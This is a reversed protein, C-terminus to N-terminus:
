EVAKLALRKDDAQGVFVYSPLQEVLSRSSKLEAPLQDNKKLAYWGNQIYNSLLRGPSLYAAGSVAEKSLPGILREPMQEFSAVEKKCTKELLDLAAAKQAVAIVNPCVKRVFVARKERGDFTKSLQTVQAATAGPQHILIAPLARSAEKPSDDIGLYALAVAQPKSKRLAPKASKFYATLADPAYGSPRPVFASSFFVTSAPLAKLFDAPMKEKMLLHQGSALEVESGTVALRSDSAKWAFDIRAEPKIGLFTGRLTTLAPFSADLNVRAEADKTLPALRPCLASAAAVADSSRGVSLCGGDLVAAFKQQKVLLPTVKVKRGAEVEVEVADASKLVKMLTEATTLEAKSLGQVSVVYPSTLNSARYRFLSVPRNQLITEYLSDLLRGKWAAAASGSEDPSAFIVHGLRFFTGQFLGSQRFDLFWKNKTMLQSLIKGDKVRFTVEPMLMKKEPVVAKEESGEAAEEASAHPAASLLAALTAITAVSARVSVRVSDKLSRRRMMTNEMWEM